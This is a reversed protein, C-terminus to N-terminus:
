STQFLKWHLTWFIQSEITLKWYKIHFSNDDELSSLFVILIFCTNFISNMRLGLTNCLSYCKHCIYFAAGIQSAFQWIQCDYEINKRKLIYYTLFNISIKSRLIGNYWQCFCVTIQAVFKRGKLYNKSLM